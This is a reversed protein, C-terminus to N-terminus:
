AAISEPASRTTTSQRSSPSQRIAGTRRRVEFIERSSNPVEYLSYSGSTPAALGTVLRILTTKGAGNEGVFGYIDGQEIHLSVGKVAFNGKYVKSLRDTTLVNM